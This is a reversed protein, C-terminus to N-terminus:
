APLEWDHQDYLKRWGLVAMNAASAPNVTEGFFIRFGRAWADRMRHAILARQLGHGRFQPRVSGNGLGVVPRVDWSMGTAAPEGDMRGLFARLGRRRSRVLAEVIHVFQPGRERFSEYGTRAYESAGEPGVREITLGAVNPPDPPRRADYIWIQQPEEDVREYGRRELARITVLAVFETAIAVRSPRAISAYHREVRELLQPTADALTSVGLARNLFPEDVAKAALCIVGGIRKTATGALKALMPDADLYSGVVAAETRQMHGALERRRM